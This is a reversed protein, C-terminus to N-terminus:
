INFVYDTLHQKLMGHVCDKAVSQTDEDESDIMDYFSRRINLIPSNNELWNLHAEDTIEPPFSINKYEKEKQLFDDCRILKLSDGLKVILTKYVQETKQIM